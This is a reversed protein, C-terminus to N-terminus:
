RTSSSGSSSSRRRPDPSVADDIRAESVRGAQVEATLTSSSRARCGNPEMFMDVGANVATEVQTAYDGPIQHIARWDSVM